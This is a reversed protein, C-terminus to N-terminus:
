AIMVEEDPYRYNQLKAKTAFTLAFTLFGVRGLFMSLTLNLKGWDSLEATIGRSLGVTMFASVQEFALELFDFQETITLIILSVSIVLLAIFAASLAKFVV